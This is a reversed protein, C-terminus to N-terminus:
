QWTEGLEIEGPLGLWRCLSYRVASDNSYILEFAFDFLGRHRRCFETDLRPVDITGYRALDDIMDRGCYPQFACAQCDPDFSNSASRNMLHRKDLDFGDSLNGISLDIVGSRALMRAEDTPYFVGDYDIVLYDIGVPNPNRLDVHREAGPQFIRRLCIGLYTEQLVRSRDEWNRRILNHVFDQYYAAWSVPNAVSEKYRKRAFGHFNVPRLFINDIGHELYADILDDADPPCTPDITPLASVKGSPYRRRLTRLNELFTETRAVTITRQRRHIEAPGDLSTSIFVDDRDFLRLTREGLQQLNTCIVFEAREFRACRAIVAEMLDPRLTPEGGQFEIKVRDTELTDIFELVQQLTEENWDFNARHEDVRSVQCYDCKLNCRLTPVLILYDLTRALSMRRAVSHALSEWALGSGAEVLDGRQALYKVDAPTLEDSAFRRAFAASSRFFTGGDSTCLVAGERQARLRIPAFKM